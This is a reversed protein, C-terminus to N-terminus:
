TEENIWDSWQKRANDNVDDESINQLCEAYIVAIRM